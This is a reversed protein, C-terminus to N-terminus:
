TYAVESRVNSSVDAYRDTGNSVPSNWPLHYALRTENSSCKYSRYARYVFKPVIDIASARSETALRCDEFLSVYFTMATEFQGSLFKSRVQQTAVNLPGPWHQLLRPLDAPLEM